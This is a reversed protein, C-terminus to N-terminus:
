TFRTENRYLATVQYHPNPELGFLKSSYAKVSASLSEPLAIVRKGKHTKPELTLDQREQRAYNKRISM